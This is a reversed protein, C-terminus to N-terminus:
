SFRKMKLYLFIVPKMTSTGNQNLHLLKRRTLHNSIHRSYEVCFYEIYIVFVVTYVTIKRNWFLLGSGHAIFFLYNMELNFKM